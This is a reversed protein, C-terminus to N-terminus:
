CSSTYGNSLLSCRQLMTPLSFQDVPQRSSGNNIHHYWVTNGNCQLTQYQKAPQMVTCRVTTGRLRNDATQQSAWTRQVLRTLRIFSQSSNALSHMAAVLHETLQLRHETHDICCANNDYCTIKPVFVDHYIHAITVVHM